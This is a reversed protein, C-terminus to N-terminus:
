WNGLMARCRPDEMQFEQRMGRPDDIEVAMSLLLNSCRPDEIEITVAHLFIHFGPDEAKVAAITCRADEM